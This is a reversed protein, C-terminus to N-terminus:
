SDPSVIPLPRKRQDLHSGPERDDFRQKQCGLGLEQSTLLALCAELLYEFPNEKNRLGALMKEIAPLVYTVTFSNAQRPEMRCVTALVHSLHDPLETTEEVGHARMAQRMTVLFEGRNYNEGFLHWGVELSCVPNLDFTQTFLEERETASLRDVRDAFAGLLDAARPETMLSRCGALREGYDANPYILLGALADCVDRRDTM